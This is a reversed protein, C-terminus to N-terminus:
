DKRYTDPNFFKRVIKHNWIIKNLYNYTTNRDGEYISKCDPDVIGKRKAVVDCFNIVMNFSIGFPYNKPDYQLYIQETSESTLKPCFWESDAFM